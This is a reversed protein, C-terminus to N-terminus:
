CLLVPRQSSRLRTEPPLPTFSALTAGIASPLDNRGGMTVLHIQHRELDDPTRIRGPNFLKGDACGAGMASITTTSAQAEDHDCCDAGPLEIAEHGSADVCRSFAPLLTVGFVVVLCIARAAYSSRASRM